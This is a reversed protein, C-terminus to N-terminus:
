QFALEFVAQEVEGFRQCGDAKEIGVPKSMLVVQEGVKLAGGVKLPPDVARAALNSRFPGDPGPRNGIEGIMKADQRQVYFPEVKDIGGRTNDSVSHFLRRRLQCTVRPYRATDGIDNGLGILLFVAGGGETDATEHEEVGQGELVPESLDVFVHLRSGFRPALAEGTETICPPVDALVDVVNGDELKRDVDEVHETGPPWLYM